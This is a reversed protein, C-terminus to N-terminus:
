VIGTSAPERTCTFVYMSHISTIICGDTHHSVSVSQPASKLLTTDKAMRLQWSWLIRVRKNRSFVECHRCVTFRVDGQQNPAEQASSEKSHLTEAEKRSHLTSLPESASVHPSFTPSWIRSTFPWSKWLMRWPSAADMSFVYAVSMIVTLTHLTAMTVISTSNTCIAHM